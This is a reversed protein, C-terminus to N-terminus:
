RKDNCTVSPRAILRLLLRLYEGSCATQIDVELTRKYRRKFEECIDMLDIESRSVVIRILTSHDPRDGSMAEHLKEAFFLQTNRSIRVIDLLMHRVDAHMTKNRRISTELDRGSGRRLDLRDAVAAIHSWSHGIFIQEFLSVNRSVEEIGSPVSLVLNVHKDVLELDVKHRQEDRPRCLLLQLMRGFVGEVKVSIDKELPIRYENQYADRIVKLQPTSRTCAIEVAISRVGRRSSISKFLLKASYIHAPEFLALTLDLFFGGTEEEIDELLNRDYMGEYASLIKQRQFNTHQLVTNIIVGDNTEIGSLAKRLCESALEPHFDPSDPGIITGSPFGVQSEYMQYMLPMNLRRLRTRPDVNEQSDVSDDKSLQRRDSDSGVSEDFSPISMSVNNAINRKGERNGSQPVVIETDEM